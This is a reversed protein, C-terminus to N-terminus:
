QTKEPRGAITNKPPVLTGGSIVLKLGDEVSMSLDIMENAKVFVLWGTTPNPTSPLFVPVVEDATMDQVDGKGEGTVFGLSYVGKRPYEILVTKRFLSSNQMFLADTLQKTASYLSRILPIRLVASEVMQILRRGIINRTILGLFIALLLTVILGVGPIHRNLLIRLYRGLFGDLTAFAWKAIQLTAIAPILAVLGTLLYTRIQRLM